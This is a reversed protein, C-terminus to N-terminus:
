NLGHKDMEELSSSVEDYVVSVFKLVEDKDARAEDVFIQCLLTALAPVIVSYKEGHMAHNLAIMLQTCDHATEERM